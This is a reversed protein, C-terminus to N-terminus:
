KKIVMRDREKGDLDLIRINLENEKAEAKLLTNNSNVIVPFKVGNKPENRVYQHLHGCLMVDVDANNLLPIFKEAIEQEGHWGGFPPMHCVIVKFPADKYLPANLAERLWAAQETRYQDYVTIGAYEIDSDPKDEGCDLVVFCVPGQKFMYYLNEEGQSFYSQFSTAFAGRTEHNGRIYYMPVESAFLRTATDMFGDFIEKEGNFASVMDGNFLFLDTNKLDCHSILKELMDAKGHIDNVMAFSVANKTHDNTKFTLPATQYVATSAVDGYVIKHGAHSLIEQACVRYRYRTGPTLGTLHVAHVTSTRKIGHRSDYFGPREKLYFHTGDDPALEVWGVSPKDAVWVITVETEGMNQLYPDQSIRIGEQAFSPLCLVFLLIFVLSIRNM